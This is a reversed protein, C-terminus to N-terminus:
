TVMETETVFGICGGQLCYISGFVTDVNAFGGMYGVRGNACSQVWGNV